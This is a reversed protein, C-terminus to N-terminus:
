EAAASLQGSGSLLPVPDLAWGKSRRRAPSPIAYAVKNKNENVENVDIRWGLTEWDKIRERYRAVPRDAPVFTEKNNTNPTLVPRLPELVTGDEEVVIRNPGEAMPDKDPELMFNRMNIFYIRTHSEDLPTEYFYQHIKMDAASPQIYTRINSVGHHGTYVKSTGPETLGGAKALEITEESQLGQGPPYAWYGTEWDTEILDLDPVAFNEDDQTFIQFTHVFENHALDIGNEVSRKYDFNWDFKLFTSRWGEQGWEPIDMLPPRDAEDLDGLYAFILGYRELTPYADVKARGPIKADPGMSPIRTCAGAGDFQWGHYPCEVCDGKRKGHALSGGRHVCVNSLCNVTGSQDRFLVFDQGLMRAQVPTDGINQSEEAVYWFNIFM